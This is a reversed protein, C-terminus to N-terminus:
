NKGGANQNKAAASQSREKFGDASGPNKDAHSQIRASAEPTMPTKPANSQTNAPKPPMAPLTPQPPGQM